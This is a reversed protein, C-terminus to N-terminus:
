RSVFNFLHLPSSSFVFHFEVVNLVQYSVCSSKNEFFKVQIIEAFDALIKFISSKMHEVYIVTALGITIKVSSAIKPCETTM